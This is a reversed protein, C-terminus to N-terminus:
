KKKKAKTFSYEYGYKSCNKQYWKHSEELYTDIYSKTSGKKQAAKYKADAKKSVETQRGALAKQFGKSNQKVGKAAKFSYTGETSTARTEKLGLNIHNNLDANSFSGGITRGDKGGYPHNHTITLKSPDAGDPMTFGVSGAGGKFYGMAFGDEGVILLEEHKLDKSKDEWYNLTGAVSVKNGNEFYTQGALGLSQGSGGYGAGTFGRGSGGASAAGRGGFFQLNLKIM